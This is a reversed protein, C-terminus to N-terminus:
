VHGPPDEVGLQEREDQRQEDRDEWRSRRRQRELSCGTAREIEFRAVGAATARRALFAVASVAPSGTDSQEGRRDDRGDTREDVEVDCDCIDRSGARPGSEDGQEVPEEGEGDSRARCGRERRPTLVAQEDGAIDDM